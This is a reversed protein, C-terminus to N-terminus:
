KKKEVEDMYELIKARFDLVKKQTNLIIKAQQDSGESRELLKYLNELIYGGSKFVEKDTLKM